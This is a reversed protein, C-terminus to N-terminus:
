LAFPLRPADRSIARRRQDLRRSLFPGLVGLINSPSDEDWEGGDIFDIIKGKGDLLAFGPVPQNAVGLRDLETAFVAADVRVIRIDGLRERWAPDDMAASVANCPRCEPLTTMLLCHQRSSRALRLQQLLVPELSETDHGVDLLDVSGVTGSWDLAARSVPPEQGAPLGTTSGGVTPSATAAAAPEHMTVTAVAYGDGHANARHAVLALGAASVAAVNFGALWLAIRLGGRDAPTSGLARCKWRAVLALIVAAIAGVVPACLFSAVAAALAARTLCSAEPREPEGVTVPGEAPPRSLQRLPTASENTPQMAALPNVM